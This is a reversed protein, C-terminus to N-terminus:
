EDWNNEAIYEQKIQRPKAFIVVSLSRRALFIQSKQGIIQQM